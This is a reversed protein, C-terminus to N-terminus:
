FETAEEITGQGKAVPTESNAALEEKKEIKTEKSNKKKFRITIDELLLLEEGGMESPLGKIMVRAIAIPANTTKNEDLELKSISIGHKAHLRVWRKQNGRQVLIEASYNKSTQDKFNHESGPAARAAAVGNETDFAVPLMPSDQMDAPCLAVKIGFDVVQEAPLNKAEHKRPKLIYPEGQYERDRLDFITKEIGM